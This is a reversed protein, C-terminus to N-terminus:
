PVYGGACGCRRYYSRGDDHAATEAAPCFLVGDPHRVGSRLYGWSGALTQGASIRVRHRPVLLTAVVLCALRRLRAGCTRALWALDDLYATLLVLGGLVIALLHARRAIREFPLAGHVRANEAALLAAGEFAFLACVFCGTAWGFATNWPAVYSPM